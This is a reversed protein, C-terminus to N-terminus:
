YADKRHGLYIVVILLRQKQIKYKMRYRYNLRLRYQDGFLKKVDWGKPRPGDKKLGLLAKLVLEQIDNPLKGLQKNAKKSVIITWM